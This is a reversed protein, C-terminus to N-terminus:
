RKNFNVAAKIAENNNKVKILEQALQEFRISNLEENKQIVQLVESNLKKDKLFQNGIKYALIALLCMADAYSASFIVIRFIFLCALIFLFDYNRM